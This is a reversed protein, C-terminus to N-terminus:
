FEPLTGASSFIPSFAPISNVLRFFPADNVFDEHPREHKTAPPVPSLPCPTFPAPRDTWPDSLAQADGPVRNAPVDLRQLDDPQGVVAVAGESPNGLVHVGGQAAASPGTIEAGAVLQVLVEVVSVQRCPSQSSVGPMSGPAGQFEQCRELRGAPVALIRSVARWLSSRTLRGYYRYGDGSLSPMVASSALVHILTLTRKGSMGSLVGSSMIVALAM